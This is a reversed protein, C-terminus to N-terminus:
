GWRGREPGMTALAAPMGDGGIAQRVAPRAAVRDLWDSVAASTAVGLARARAAQPFVIIDAIGYDDGALWAHGALDAAIRDMGKALAARAKAVDEDPFGDMAQAWLARREPPLAAFGQRAKDDPPTGELAWSLIALNPALHTEVYKGWKQIMYRAQPDAGGLAPAPFREDLYLLIFFAETLARGAEDRLVPVQGAPNLALLKDGHQEFRSLDIGHLDLDLGKEAVGILVSACHGNPGGHHLQIM